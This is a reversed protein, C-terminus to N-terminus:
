TLLATELGISSIKAAIRLKKVYFCNTDHDNRVILRTIDM